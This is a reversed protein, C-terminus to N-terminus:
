LYNHVSDKEGAVRAIEEKLRLKRKKLDSIRLDSSGPSRQERAVEDSLMEHKRRLEMLHSDVNM